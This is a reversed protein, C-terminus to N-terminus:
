TAGTDSEVDAVDAIDGVLVVGADDVNWILLM